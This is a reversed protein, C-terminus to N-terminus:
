EPLVEIGSLCAQGRRPTFQIVIPADTSIGRFEKILPRFTGAADRSIDIDKAVSKGQIAIDFVREGPRKNELEAFHLRVTCTAAKAAAEHLKYELRELGVVCSSAIWDRSNSSSGSGSSSNSGRASPSKSDNSQILSTHHYVSRIDRGELKIPVDPSGGGVSPYEYWMAGDAARRDGPAGLNCGFQAPVNKRSSFTWVEAGPMHVLALSCQNQYTCVCTRTYDPANLVGDAVILNATCSSRFGGINGTGSDGKLDFFGAAGSRFTLLHESGIATNCGYMREYKWGTNQGTLLDLQFGGGGNTIIKDRWLMCPGSYRKKLDRWIVKGDRGRYAVMGEAAEDKARDRYPSGAQLLVDYQRSYNLFTGFVNEDTAWVENGTAQDLAYLRPKFEPEIGRRRLIQLKASSMGDICFVKGAAAVISNHRFTFKADRSWMREGSHRNFVVLRRSASAYRSANLANGLRGTPEKKKDDDVTVPRSTAILLDGDVAIYGWAAEPPAPRQSDDAASGTATESPRVVGDHTFRKRTKGTDADIELISDGYVVYIADPMTVYNSGIEGAGAFHKTVDYYKGLQPLHREWLVLGTYVDVCRLLDPGEILLRGGAVQPSPGHGHRPLIQDNPPGGFWLLGLPAMVLSDRSVVTNAANGYQHTWPSSGPLAGVRRLVTADGQRTLEIGAVPDKGIAVALSKHQDMSLALRATGGYPRLPKVLAPAVESWDVDETPAKESFVARALYPPLDFAAFRGTHAVVRTGYLGSADMARRFREVREADPEIVIVHWVSHDIIERVLQGDGLGWAIAYGPKSRGQRLISEAVDSPTATVSPTTTVSPTATTDAEAENSKSPILPWSKVNESREGFCLMKGEATVVFLKDDAALAAEARGEIKATWLTAPDDAQKASSQLQELSVLSVRNDGGTVVASGLMALVRVNGLAPKWTQRVVIESKKTKKGRRDITEIERFGDGLSWMETSSILLDDTLVDAKANGVKAGDRLNHASKGVVYFSDNVTAQWGGDGKGGFEFHRLRGTHRDFVAPLSRGGPVLLNDGSAALYGQPVLSGFSPAGHPHVMWKSGVESNLWTTRGTDADVAHIFIGMFPWISATYYVTDEVVVPGGRAPWSSILRDNGVIRRDSPGGRVKWRLTGTAAELCYLFGDDSVAYVLPGRGAPAFRVPGDTYFRWVEAGSETDYATISDNVTSGVILRKGIVIPQYVADFQLNNQSAPWAPRPTPLQRTWRLQLDPSLDQPSANGRRADYRWMPWDAARASIGLLPSYATILSLLTLVCARFMRAAPKM